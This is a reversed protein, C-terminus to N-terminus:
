KVITKIITVKKAANDWLIDTGDKLGLARAINAIPMMTRSNKIEPKVDSEYAIGNVKIQNKDVQIEVVTENDKLVVTRTERVWDVKFGLVEAIFRVPLMTRGDKIYPIVDLKIQTTVGDTKKIFINSGIKIEVTTEAKDNKSPESKKSPEGAIDKKDVSSKGGGGRGNGIYSGGSSASSWDSNSKKHNSLNEKRVVDKTNGKFIVNGGTKTYTHKAADPFMDFFGYSEKDANSIAKVNGGTIEIISTDSADDSIKYRMIGASVGNESKGAIATIDGSNVFSKNPEQPNFSIGVSVNYYGDSPTGSDNGSKVNVTGSNDFKRVNIAITGDGTSDGSEADITGENKLGLTDIAVNYRATGTTVKLSGTDAIYINLCNAGFLTGQQYADTQLSLDVKGKIDLGDCMICQGQKDKYSGKILSKVILETGSGVTINGSLEIGSVVDQKESSIDLKKADIDIDSKSYIGYDGSDTKITLTGSGTIRFKKGSVENIIGSIISDDTTNIEITSDGELDLIVDYPKSDEEFKIGCEEYVGNETNNIIIHSNKMKLTFVSETTLSCKVTLATQTTTEITAGDLCLTNSIDDYKATTGSVAPLVTFDSYDTPSVETKDIEISFDGAAAYSPPICTLFASLIVAFSILLFMAIKNKKKSLM